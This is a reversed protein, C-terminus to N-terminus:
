KEEEIAKNLKNVERTAKARSTFVKKAPFGNCMIWYMVEYYGEKQTQKIDIRTIALGYPQQVHWKAPKTEVNYGKGYCEPCDYVNGELKVAGIGKCVPCQVQKEESYFGITWIPTGPKLIEDWTLLNKDKM